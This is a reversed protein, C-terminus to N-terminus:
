PALAPGNGHPRLAKILPHEVERLLLSGGDSSIVGGDFRGAVVRKGLGQFELQEGRCETKLPDGERQIM